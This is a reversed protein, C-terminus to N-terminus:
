LDKYPRIEFQMNRNNPNLMKLDNVRELLKEAKSLSYCKVDAGVDSDADQVWKNLTLNYIGYIIPPQFNM